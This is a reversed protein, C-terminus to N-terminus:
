INTTMKHSGYRDETWAYTDINRSFSKLLYIKMLINLSNLEAIFAGRKSSKQLLLKQADLNERSKAQNEYRTFFCACSSFFAAEFFIESRIHLICGLQRDIINEKLHM